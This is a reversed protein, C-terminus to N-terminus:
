RDQFKSARVDCIQSRRSCIGDGPLEIKSTEVGEGRPNSCSAAKNGGARHQSRAAETGHGRGRAHAPEAAALAGGPDARQRVVGPDGADRRAGAPFLLLVNVSLAELHVGQWSCCCSKPIFDRAVSQPSREVNKGVRRKRSM